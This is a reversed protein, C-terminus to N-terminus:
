NIKSFCSQSGADRYDLALAEGHNGHDARFDATVYM